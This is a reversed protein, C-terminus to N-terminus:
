TDGKEVGFGDALLGSSNDPNTVVVDWIRCGNRGGGSVSVDATITNADVVLINSASPTPGSGDVFTVSAGATFSSGGITVSITSGASMANPSISSVALEAAVENDLNTISVFANSNVAGDLGGVVVTTNPDVNQNLESNLIMVPGNNLAFFKDPDFEDDSGGCAIFYVSAILALSLCLINKM